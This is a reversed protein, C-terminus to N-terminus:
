SAHFVAVTVSSVATYETGGMGDPPNRFRRPDLAVLRTEGAPVVISLNPDFATAGVPGVSTPDYVTVTISSVGGNNVQLIHTEYTNEFAFTDGNVDAADFTPELAAATLSQVTLVAM